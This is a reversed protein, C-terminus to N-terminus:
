SVFTRSTYLLPVDPTRITDNYGVSLIAQLEPGHSHFLEAAVVWLFSTGTVFLRQM